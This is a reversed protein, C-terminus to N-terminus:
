DEVPEIRWNVGAMHPGTRTALDKKAAAIDTHITITYWRKDWSEVQLLYRTRVERPENCAALAYMSAAVAIQAYKKM